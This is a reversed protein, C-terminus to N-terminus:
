QYGFARNYGAFRQMILGAIDQPVHERWDEERAEIKGVGEHPFKDNYLGDVDTSGASPKVNEFDHEFSEEKTATYIRDLVLQPNSVFTEYQVIQVFGFRRRLLDEIGMIQQGLMGQPGFMRDARNYATIEVPNGADDLIPNKAHQKEISAFVSRLDRVCVFLQADPFLQHLIAANLNWFRGKDFVVEGKGDYWAEVLARAARAMRATTEEKDRILESKIEPSRSWLGSIQRMTQAMCSTSSAYFRPNQNLVNCLLTSGSRPMGAIVHFKM